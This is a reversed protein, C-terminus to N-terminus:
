SYNKKFWVKKWERKLILFAVHESLQIMNSGDLQKIKEESLDTIYLLNLYESFRNQILEHIAKQLLMKLDSPKTFEDVKLDINALLFDKNLQQILNHYLENKESTSIIDQISKLEM